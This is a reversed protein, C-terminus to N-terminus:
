ELVSRADLLGRLSLDLRSRADDVLHEVESEALKLRAM